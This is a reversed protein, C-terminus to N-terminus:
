AVNLARKIHRDALGLLWHGPCQTRLRPTVAEVIEGRLVPQETLGTVAAVQRWQRDEVAALAANDGYHDLLTRLTPRLTRLQACIQALGAALDEPENELLADLRAAFATAWRRHAALLFEDLGGFEAEIKEIYADPVRASGTGDIEDLVANLLDTRRHVQQWGAM